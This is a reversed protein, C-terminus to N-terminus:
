LALLSAGLSFYRKETAEDWQGFNAFLFGKVLGDMWADWAAENRGLNPIKVELCLREFAEHQQSEYNAQNQKNM